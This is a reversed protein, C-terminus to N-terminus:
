ASAEGQKGSENQEGQESQEGLARKGAADMEPDVEMMTPARTANGAWVRRGASRLDLVAIEEAISDRDLVEAPVLERSIGSGAVRVDGDVRVEHRQGPAWAQFRRLARFRWRAPEPFLVDAGSAYAKQVLKVTGEVGRFAGGDTHWYLPKPLDDAVSRRGRREAAARKEEQDSLGLLWASWAQVAGITMIGAPLLASQHQKKPVQLEWLHHGFVKAGELREEPPNGVYIETERPSMLWAGIGRVAIQKCAQAVWDNGLERRWERMANGFAAFAENPEFKWTTHIRRVKAGLKEAVRLQLWSWVGFVLGTPYCAVGGGLPEYRLPGYRLNRPVEVLAMTLTCPDAYSSPGGVGLFAAGIPCRELATPYASGLDLDCITGTLSVEGTTPDIKEEAEFVQGPHVYFEQRGGGVACGHRLSVEVQPDVCLEEKLFLRFISISTATLSTGLSVAPFRSRIAMDIAEIQDLVMKCEDVPSLGIPVDVLGAASRGSWLRGALSEGDPRTMDEQEQEAFDPPVPTGPKYCFLSAFQNRRRTVGLSWGARALPIIVESWDAPSHPSLWLQSFARPVDPHTLFHLLADRTRFFYSGTAAVIQSGTRADVGIRLAARRAPTALRTPDKPKM